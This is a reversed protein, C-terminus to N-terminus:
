LFNHIESISKCTLTPKEGILVDPPNPGWLAGISHCGAAKAAQIDHVADGIYVTTEPSADLKGMAHHLPEPHPKHNETDSGTVLIDMSKEFGFKEFSMFASKRYKATVVGVKYGSEKLKSLSERAGQFLDMQPILKQNHDIYYAVMKEAKTECGSFEIMQSALPRGLTSIIQQRSPAPDVKYHALTAVFSDVIGPVSDLLTGDLDFLVTTVKQLPM